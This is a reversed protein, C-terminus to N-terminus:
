IRKKMIEYGVSREYKIDTKLIIKAWLDDSLELSLFQNWEMVDSEKSVTDSVICKLGAAQAELLAFPLGEFLSPMVIIDMVQLIENVNDIVGMLKVDNELGLMRIQHEINEREKGDGCLLLKVKKNYQKCAYFINILKKHNKEIGFRGIHGIVFNDQLDFQNRLNNRIIPNYKFRKLDIGNKMIKASHNGFFWKTATNSCAFYENAIRFIFHKNINHMLLTFQGGM